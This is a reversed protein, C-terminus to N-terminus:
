HPRPWRSYNQHKRPSSCFVVIIQPLGEVQNRLWTHASHCDQRMGNLSLPGSGPDCQTAFVIRQPRIPKRNKLQLPHPTSWDNRFPAQTRSTDLADFTCVALPSAIIGLCGCVLMDLCPRNVHVYKRSVHTYTDMCVRHCQRHQSFQRAWSFGANRHELTDVLVGLRPDLM